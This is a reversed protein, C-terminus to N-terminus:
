SLGDDERQAVRACGGPELRADATAHENLGKGGHANRSASNTREIKIRVWLGMVAM